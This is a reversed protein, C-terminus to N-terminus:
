YIMMLSLTSLIELLLVVCDHNVQEFNAISGWACYQCSPVSGVCQDPTEM